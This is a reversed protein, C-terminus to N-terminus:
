YCLCVKLFICCIVTFVRFAFKFCLILVSLFVFFILFSAHSVPVAFVYSSHSVPLRLLIHVCFMICVPQLDATVSMSCQHLCDSHSLELVLHCRFALMELASAM